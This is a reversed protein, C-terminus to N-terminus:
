KPPSGAADADHMLVRLDHCSTAAHVASGYLVREKGEPDVLATYAIHDVVGASQKM